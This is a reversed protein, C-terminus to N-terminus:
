GMGGPHHGQGVLGTLHAALFAVALVAVAIWFIRAWRPPPPAEPRPEPM